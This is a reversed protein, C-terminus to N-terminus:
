TAAVTLNAARLMGFCNSLSVFIMTIQLFYVKLIVHMYYILYQYKDMHESVYIGGMSKRFYSFHKCHIKAM